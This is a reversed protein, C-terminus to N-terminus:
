WERRCLGLGFNFDIDATIMDSTQIHNHLNTILVLIILAFAFTMLSKHVKELDVHQILVSIATETHDLAKSEGAVSIAVAAAVESPKFEM